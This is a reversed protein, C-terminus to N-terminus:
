RTGLIVVKDAEGGPYYPGMTTDGHFARVRRDVEVDSHSAPRTDGGSGRLVVTSDSIELEIGQCPGQRSECLTRCVPEREVTIWHEEGATYSETVLGEKGETGSGWASREADASPTVSRTAECARADFRDAMRKLYRENERALARESPSGGQDPMKGVTEPEAVLPSAREEGGCGGSAIGVIAVAAVIWLRVMM